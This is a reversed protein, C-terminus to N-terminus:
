APEKAYFRETDMQILLGRMVKEIAREDKGTVDIRKAVEGTAIEVVEIEKQESM